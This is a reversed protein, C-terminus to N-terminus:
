GKITNLKITHSHNHPVQLSHVLEDKLNPGCAQLHSTSQRLLCFIVCCCLFIKSDCKSGGSTLSVELFPATSHTFYILSSFKMAGKWNLQIKFVLM